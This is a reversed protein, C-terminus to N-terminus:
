SPLGAARLIQRGEVSQGGWLTNSTGDDSGQVNEIDKERQRAGIVSRIPWYGFPYTSEHCGKKDLPICLHTRIAAGTSSMCESGFHWRTYLSTVQLLECPEGM